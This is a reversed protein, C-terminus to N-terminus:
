APFSVLSERTTDLSRKALQDVDELADMAMEMYAMNNIGVVTRRSKAEAATRLACVQFPTAGPLDVCFLVPKGALTELLADLNQELDERSMDPTFNVFHMNEPVGVVMELNTRIGQPYTGHGVVVIEVM